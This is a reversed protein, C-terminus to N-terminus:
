QLLFINGPGFVLTSFDTLTDDGITTAFSKVPKADSDYTPM